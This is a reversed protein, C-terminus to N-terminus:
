KILRASSVTLSFLQSLGDSISEDASVRYFLPTGDPKVSACAKLQPEVNPIVPGVTRLAWRDGDLVDPSYETYLIAIRIGRNKIANCQDLHPQLLSNITREGDLWENAMGDTVLFMVAQPTGNTDGDGPNPIENNMWNFMPTFQTALDNIEEAKTIFGNQWWMPQLSLLNPISSPSMTSVDQLNSTLPVPDRIDFGFVKMRYTVNNQQATNQSFTILRQAASQEADIRLEVPDGGDILGYNKAAWLPDAYRGYTELPGKLVAGNKDKYYIYGNAVYVVRYYTEQGTVPNATIFIDTISPDNPDTLRLDGSRVNEFHCAFACGAGSKMSKTIMRMRSIDASTVPLLMSPSTDLVLYFDINPAKSAYATSSGNVPLTPKGLIGSFSNTSQASYSVTVTRSLNSGSTSSITISPNNPNNADYILGPLGEVQKNFMARAAARAEDDSKKMMIASVGSLSAADAAAELKTDLRMARSYDIGFGVTLTLPMISFGLLMFVNGQNDSLLGAIRRPIIGTNM